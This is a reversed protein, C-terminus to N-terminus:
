KIWQKFSKVKERSVIVEDDTDVSLKIVLRSNSYSVIDKIYDINIIHKRSVKYFVGSDIIDILSDLTYDILYNRNDNTTLFTGKSFSYFCAIDEINVIKIHDGIKVTFRKKFDNKGSSRLEQLLSEINISNNVTTKKYKDIALQLDSLQIPKLLYDISNHKFARIAYNSFATTFIIPFDITNNDLISFSIGDSLQIDFFALDIKQNNDNLYENAEKISTAHNIIIIKSDIKYLMRKLKEFALIEDEVILVRM